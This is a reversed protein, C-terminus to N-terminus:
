SEGAVLEFFQRPVLCGEDELKALALHGPNPGQYRFPNRFKIVSMRLRNPFRSLLEKKQLQDPQVAFSKTLGQSALKAESAPEGKLSLRWATGTSDHGEANGPALMTAFFSTAFLQNQTNRFSQKPKKKLCFIAIGHDCVFLGGTRM